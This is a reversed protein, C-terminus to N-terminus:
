HFYKHGDLGTLSPAPPPYSVAVPTPQGSPNTLASNKVFPGSKIDAAQKDQIMVDSYKSKLYPYGWFYLNLTVRAQSIRRRCEIFVQMFMDTVLQGVM